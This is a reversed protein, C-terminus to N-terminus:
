GSRDECPECPCSRATGDWGMRHPQSALLVCVICQSPGKVLLTTDLATEVVSISLSPHIFISSKIVKVCWKMRDFPVPRSGRFCSTRYIIHGKRKFCGKRGNGM